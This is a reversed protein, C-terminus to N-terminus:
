EVYCVCTSKCSFLNTNLQCTAPNWYLKVKYKAYSVELSHTYTEKTINVVQSGILKSYNLFNM